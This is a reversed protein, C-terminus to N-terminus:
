SDDDGVRALARLVLADIVVCVIMLVAITAWGCWAAVAYGVAVSACVAAILSLVIATGLLVATLRSVSSRKYAM